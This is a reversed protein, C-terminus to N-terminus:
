TLRDGRVLRGGGRIRSLWRRGRTTSGRVGSGGESFQDGLRAALLGVSSGRLGVFVVAVGVRRGGLVILALRLRGRDRPATPTVDGECCEPRELSAERVRLHAAVVQAALQIGDLPQTPGGIPWGEVARAVGGLHVHLPVLANLHRGPRPLKAGVACQAARWHQGTVPVDVAHM